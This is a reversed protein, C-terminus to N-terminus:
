LLPIYGCVQTVASEGIVTFIDEIHELVKQPTIKAIASILSFVHNRTVGDKLSRACEVLLKINIENVIDEQLVLILLLPKLLYSRGFLFSPFLFM